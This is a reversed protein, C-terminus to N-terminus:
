SALYLSFRAGGLPSTGVEVRGGYADVIERVVALGIGQGERGLDLRVGRQLVEGRRAADVGDGDDDVHVVLSRVTDGEGGVTEIVRATVMVQQQCYKYANDLLNGMLELLDGVEGRLRVAAPVDVTVQVSKEAYVKAFSSLLKDVIPRVEVAAALTTRGSTAARQLQYQVIQDMRQTQERLQVLANSPLEPGAAIGSIVALPTKLSHTLDGIANRYRALQAQDHAILTNLDSTLGRLERPYRGQLRDREGLEIAQLDRGVRRLPALGWRVITGQLLLLVVALGGLWGWLNRRFGGITREFDDRSEAVSFVLDIESGPESEWVVRLSSGFHSAGGVLVEQYLFAGPHPPQPFTAALGVMSPSRWIEKRASDVVAGYKGSGPNSFRPEPLVDPMQLAGEPSWDAAALLAYIEAQLRARVAERASERFAQDLAWGTLGLFGALVLTVAGLLRGHISDV